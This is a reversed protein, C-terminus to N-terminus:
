GADVILSFPNRSLGECESLFRRAVEKVQSLREWDEAEFVQTDVSSPFQALLQLVQKHFTDTVRQWNQRLRLVQLERERQAEKEKRLTELDNSLTEAKKSLNDRQQTLKKIDKELKKIQQTVTDPVVERVVPESLKTLEQQLDEINRTLEDITRQASLQTEFLRQQALLAEEQAKREAEEARQQAKKHAEIIEKAVERTIKEGAEARDKAEQRVEEPVKKASLLYLAADAFEWGNPIQGFRLATNILNEATSESWGFEGRVWHLFQGHGIRQKVALLDKGNEYICRKTRGIIKDATEQLFTATDRDFAGYDFSTQVIESM